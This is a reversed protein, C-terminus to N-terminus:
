SSPSSGFRYEASDALQRYGIRRYIANSTPNALDTYLFCFTRGSELLRTSQEAVLATAYGRGRYEPPTFVPGIRIGNPTPSGHSSMSRVAREVEWVWFGASAPDSGLRQDVMRTFHDLDRDSVRLAERAFAGFWEILLDRDEAGAPRAKGAPRPIPLVRELAFVGQAMGPHAVGGGQQEWERLFWEITPRIGMVGPVNPDQGRVGAVLSPVAAADVAEALVLNFPPTRMAAAAPRGREDDVIWLRYEPYLDPEHVLTGALGFIFNNRAEASGALQRLRDCFVVPDRIARFEM